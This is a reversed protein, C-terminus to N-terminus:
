SHHGPLNTLRTVPPRGGIASHIQPSQLLPALRAPRREGPMLGATPSLATSDRPRATQRLAPDTKPHRQARHLRDRWAYSRYAAGNDSLVREVIVGRDAFWAVARRLVGIATDAKEDYWIEAYALRSHDDIATHV